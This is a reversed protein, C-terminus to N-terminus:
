SSAPRASSESSRATWSWRTSRAPSTGSSRFGTTRSDLELRFPVSAPWAFHLGGVPQRCQRLHGQLQPRQRLGARARQEPRRRLRQGARGDGDHSAPEATGASQRTHRGAKLFAREQRVERHALQRLRRHRLHQGRRGMRCRDASQVRVTRAAAGANGAGRRGPRRGGRAAPRAGDRGAGRPQVQHGHEDGRRGGLHQGARDVRVAHAFEFGYLGQGIERVFSGNQDFEFLRTDGSRTYM